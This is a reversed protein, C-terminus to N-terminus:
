VRWPDVPETPEVVAPVTAERLWKIGNESLPEVIFSGHQDEHGLVLGHKRCVAEIDSLFAAVQAERKDVPLGDVSAAEYVIPQLGLATAGYPIQTTAKFRDETVEGYIRRGHTRDIWSARYFM